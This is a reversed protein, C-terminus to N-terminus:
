RRAWNHRSQLNNSIAKLKEVYDRSRKYFITKENPSLIAEEETRELEVGIIESGTEDLTVNYEWQGPGFLIQGTRM